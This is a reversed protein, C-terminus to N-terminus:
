SSTRRSQEALSTLYLRLLTKTEAITPLHGRPDRRFALQVLGDAAQTAVLCSLELQPTLSLNEEDVLMRCLSDAMMEIDRDDQQQAASSLERGVWVAVYAPDERLRECQRDILYEIAGQWGMAELRTTADEMLAQIGGGHRAVIVDFVARRDAFFQYVSGIPVGAEEALRRMTFEHVPERTLLRDAAALIEALRKRSREQLPHRRLGPLQASDNQSDRTM